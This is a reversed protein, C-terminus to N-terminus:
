KSYHLKACSESVCGIYTFLDTEELSCTCGGALLMARLEEAPAQAQKGPCLVYATIGPQATALSAALWSAANAVNGNQVTCVDWDDQPVLTGVQPGCWSIKQHM